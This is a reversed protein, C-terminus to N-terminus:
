GRENRALSMEPRRWSSHTAQPAGDALQEARQSHEVPQMSLKPLPSSGNASGENVIRTPKRNMHLAVSPIRDRSVRQGIQQKPDAVPEPALVFETREVKQDNM